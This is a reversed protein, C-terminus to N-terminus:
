YGKKSKSLKTKKGKTWGMKESFLLLEWQYKTTGTMPLLTPTYKPHFTSLWWSLTIFFSNM